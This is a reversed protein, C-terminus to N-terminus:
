SPFSAFITMEEKSAFSSAYRLSILLRLYFNSSLSSLEDLMLDGFYLLFLPPFATPLASYAPVMLTFTGDKVILGTSFPCLIVSYRM